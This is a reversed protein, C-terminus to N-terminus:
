TQPPAVAGSPGEQQESLVTLSDLYVIKVGPTSMALERAISWQLRTPVEGVLTVEQGTSHATVQVGEVDLRPDAELRRQVDQEIVSDAVVPVTQEPATEVPAEDTGGGCAAALGLCVAALTLRVSPM